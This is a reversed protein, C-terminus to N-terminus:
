NLGSSLIKLLRTYNRWTFWKIRGVKEVIGHGVDDALQHHCFPEIVAIVFETCQQGVDCVDETVTARKPTEYTDTMYM